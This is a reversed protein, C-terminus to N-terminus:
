KGRFFLGFSVSTGFIIMGHVVGNNDKVKDDDCCVPAPLPLSFPALLLLFFLHAIM